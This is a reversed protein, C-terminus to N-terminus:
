LYKKNKVSFTDRFSVLANLYQHGPKQSTLTANDYYITGFGWEFYSNNVPSLYYGNMKFTDLFFSSSFYDEYREKSVQGFQNCICIPDSPYCRRDKKFLKM